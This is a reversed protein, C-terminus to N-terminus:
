LELWLCLKNRLLAADTWRVNLAAIVFVWLSVCINMYALCAGALDNSQKKSRQMLKALDVADRCFFFSFYNLSLWM